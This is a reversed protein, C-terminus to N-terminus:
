FYCQKKRFNIVAILSGFFIWHIPKLYNEDVITLVMWPILLIFGILHIFKDKSKYSNFALKMIAYIFIVTIFLGYEVLLQIWLNHAYNFSSGYLSFEAIQSGPSSGCFYNNMSIAFGDLILQYRPDKTLDSSRNSFKQEIHFLIVDKFEFCLYLLLISILLYVFRNESINPKFVKYIPIITLLLSLLCGRSTNIIEIVVIGIILFFDYIISRNTQIYLQIKFLIMFLCLCLVISLSNYNGFTVAAYIRNTYEGDLGEVMETAQFSGEFFHNGTFIEWFSLLLIILTLLEWGKFIFRIPNYANLHAYYILFFVGIYTILSLIGTIYKHIDLTWLVSIISYFIIFYFFLTLKRIRYDVKVFLFYYIWSCFGIIRVPTFAGFMPGAFVVSVITIIIILDFKNFSSKFLNM